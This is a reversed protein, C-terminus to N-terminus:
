PGERRTGYRVLPLLRLSSFTVAIMVISLALMVTGLAAATPWDNIKVRDAILASATYVQNGGLVSTSVVDGFSIIFSMLCAVTVGPMSYPVVISCFIRWSGAGLNQAALMLTRDIRSLSVYIILCAIPILVSLLGIRVATTNYILSFTGPYMGTAQLLSVFIGRDNLWVYWSFTRVIYSSLFPLLLAVALVGRWRMYLSFAIAYAMPFAFLVSLVATSAALWLSFLLSNIYDPREILRAYNALTWAPALQYDKMTWFSIAILVLLPVVYFLSQWAVHAFALILTSNSSRRDSM